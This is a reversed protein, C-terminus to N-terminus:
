RLARTRDERDLVAGCGRDARAHSPDRYLIPSAYPRAGLDLALAVLAAAAAAAAACGTPGRSPTRRVGAAHEKVSLCVSLCVSLYSLRQHLSMHMHMDMHMDHAHVHVKKLTKALPPPSSVRPKM